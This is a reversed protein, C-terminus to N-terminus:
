PAPKQGSDGGTCRLVCTGGPVSRSNMTDNQAGAGHVHLGSTLLM